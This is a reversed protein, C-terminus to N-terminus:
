RLSSALTSLLSPNERQFLLEYAIDNMGNDTLTQMLISTGLFGTQLCNGHDKFNQKLREIMNEKAEGEVLNNKLAFLAPTQMTNLIETKFTGDPNLFTDRLYNRADEVMQEYKAVDKGTAYATNNGKFRVKDGASVNIETGGTSSTIETWEGYNVSYSITRTVGTTAAKWLITGGTLIEFTLYQQNYPL